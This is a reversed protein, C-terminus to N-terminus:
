GQTIRVEIASHGMVIVDGDALLWNDITHNNVTTGNTSHLDVLIADQGDWVLEAHHRSVGTDPLRFDVDSGRGILNSGEQVLYSRSSGDKLLLTVTPALAEQIVESSQPQAKIFETEGADGTVGYASAPNQQNMNEEKHQPTVSIPAAPASAPAPLHAEVRSSSAADSSAAVEGSSTAGGPDAAGPRDALPPVYGCGMQPQAEHGTSIDLQGTHRAPNRELTVVLPGTTLWGQNRLHRALVDAVLSPLQPQTSTLHEYDNPSISVRYINPAILMGDSNGAVNDEATQKLLEELETIVVKGGFLRASANDVSRELWSDLKAVKGLFGM